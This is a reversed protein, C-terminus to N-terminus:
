LKNETKLLISSKRLQLTETLIENKGITTFQEFFQLLAGLTELSCGIPQTKEARNKEGLGREIRINRAECNALSNHGPNM